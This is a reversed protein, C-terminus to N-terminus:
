EVCPTSIHATYYIIASSIKIIVCVKLISLMLGLVRDIEDCQVQGFWRILWKM